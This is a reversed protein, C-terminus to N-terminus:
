RQGEKIKKLAASAALRVGFDKDGLLTNLAPIAAPGLNGLAQAAARRAETSDKESEAVWHKLPKGEYDPDARHAHAMAKPQPKEEPANEQSELEEDSPIAAPRQQCGLCAVVLVVGLLVPLSRV